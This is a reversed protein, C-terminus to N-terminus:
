KRDRANNKENLRAIEMLEALQDTLGCRVCATIETQNVFIIENEHGVKECKALNAEFGDFNELALAVYDRESILTLGAAKAAPLYLSNYQDIALRIFLQERRSVTEPTKGEVTQM